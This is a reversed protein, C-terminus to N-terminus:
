AFFRKRGKNNLYIADFQRLTGDPAHSLDYIGYLRFGSQEYQLLTSALSAQGEYTPACIVEAYIISIRGDRVAQVAGAMVLPEGGQVDMKLIDIHTIDKNQILFEDLTTFDALSKGLTELHGTGWVEEGTADAALLSNTGSDVNVNLEMQGTKDTLGYPHVRVNSDTATIENLIRYSDCFPEFAYVVSEPMVRRFLQAIKGHHAGVDFIIPARVAACLFRLDSFADRTPPASRIRSIRYGIVSLMAKLLNKIMDVGGGLSTNKRISVTYM